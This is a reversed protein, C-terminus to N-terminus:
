LDASQEIAQLREQCLRLRGGRALFGGQWPRGGGQLRGEGHDGTHCVPEGLRVGGDAGQLPFHPPNQHFLYYANRRSM